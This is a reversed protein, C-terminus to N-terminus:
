ERVAEYYAEAAEYATMEGGEVEGIYRAWIADTFDDVTVFIFPPLEDHSTDLVYGDPDMIGPCRSVFRHYNDRRHAEEMDMEGSRVAEMLLGWFDPNMRM